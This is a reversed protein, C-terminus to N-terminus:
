ESFNPTKCMTKFDIFCTKDPLYYRIRRELDNDYVEKKIESVFESDKKSYISVRGTDILDFFDADYLNQSGDNKQLDSKNYFITASPCNYQSDFNNKQFLSIIRPSKQSLLRKLVSM